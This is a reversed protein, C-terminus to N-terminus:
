DTGKSLQGRKNWQDICKEKTGLDCFNYNAFECVELAHQLIEGTVIVKATRGNNLAMSGDNEVRKVSSNGVIMIDETDDYMILHYKANISTNSPSYQTKPKIARRATIQAANSAMNLKNLREIDLFNFKLDNFRLLNLYFLCYRTFSSFTLSM